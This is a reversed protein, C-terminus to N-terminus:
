NKKTLCNLSVSFFNVRVNKGLLIRFGPRGHEHSGQPRNSSKINRFLHNPM